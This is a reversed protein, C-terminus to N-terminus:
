KYIYIINKPQFRHATIKIEFGLKTKKQGLRRAVLRVFRNRKVVPNAFVTCCVPDRTVFAEPGRISFFHSGSERHVNPQEWRFIKINIKM